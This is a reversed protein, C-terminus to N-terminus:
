FIEVILAVWGDMEFKDNFHILTIIKLNYLCRELTIINTYKSNFKCKFGAYIPTNQISNPSLDPTWHDNSTSTLFDLKSLTKVMEM